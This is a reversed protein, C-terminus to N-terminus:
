SGAGMRPRSFVQGGHSPLTGCTHLRMKSCTSDVHSRLPSKEFVLRPWWSSVCCHAPHQDGATRCMDATLYGDPGITRRGFSAGSLLNRVQRSSIIRLNLGILANTGGDICWVTGSRENVPEQSEVEGASAQALFCDESALGPRCNRVISGFGSAIAIVGMDSGCGPRQSQKPTAQRLPSLISRRV